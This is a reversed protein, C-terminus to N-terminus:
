FLRRYECVQFGKDFTSIIMHSQADSSFNFYFKNLVNRLEETLKGYIDVLWFHLM